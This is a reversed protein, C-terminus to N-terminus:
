RAVGTGPASEHIARVRYTLLDRDRAPAEEYRCHSALLEGPVDPSLIWVASDAFTVAFEQEFEMESLNSVEIDGPEMWHTKGTPDEVLIVTDNSIDSLLVRDGWATGKGIVAYVNSLSTVGYCYERNPEDFLAINEEWTRDLVTNDPQYPILLFRWSYMPTSSDSVITGPPLPLDTGIMYVTKSTSVFGSDRRSAYSDSHSCGAFVLCSMGTSFVLSCLSCDSLLRM